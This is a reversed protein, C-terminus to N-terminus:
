PTHAYKLSNITSDAPRYMLLIQRAPAVFPHGDTALQDLRRFVVWVPFNSLRCVRVIGVFLSDNLMRAAPLRSKLHVNTDAPRIQAWENIHLM